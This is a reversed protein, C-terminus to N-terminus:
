EAYEFVEEISLGFIRAVRFGMELSPTYRNKELSIVTQRTVRLADALAEQTMGKAQRLELVRNRLM